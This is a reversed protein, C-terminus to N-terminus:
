SDGPVQAQVIEFGGCFGVVFEPGFEDMSFCELGLNQMISIVLELM